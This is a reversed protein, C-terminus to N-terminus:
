GWTGPYKFCACALELKKDPAIFKEKILLKERVAEMILNHFAMYAECIDRKQQRLQKTMQMVALDYDVWADLGLLDIRTSICRFNLPATTIDLELSRRRLTTNGNFCFMFCNKRLDHM